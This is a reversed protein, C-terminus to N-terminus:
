KPAHELIAEALRRRREGLRYPDQDWTGWTPVAERVIDDVAAAGGRQELLVFYEYDEMGDRLNKLRISAVPGEIGADVGPYFLFGDGNWHVRFGPELWPNRDPSGWYVTSWYLLGTIGYRRNLWPAIRYSLWPFDIQWFPPRDNKVEEYEPDYPPATQVLATYSWVEDGQAQVRKVSAEHVFGFLPCWIDIAGDLVGWDPNQTYSQEVVLRRIGPAADRVLAGLQRVREYAEPDNPEDLMYLYAGKAWGKKELYAYWSRYFNVAHDRGAGLIDGFPARPIQINTMHHTEVLTTFQRDLEEGFEVTGDDKPAPQLRRPVPPNLHHAAMMAIYRDELRYYAESDRKLGHYDAVREFGGFHNEHTPGTPLTFDWVIVEFPLEVAAANAAQVRIAGRYVGAPIDRPVFVDVWIPQQRDQWLSFGTAGFRRGEVLQKGDWRPQPIDKGTYADHFPVLPDPVLGPPCTAHRVSHRVPVYVECYLSVGEAPLAVGDTNVLPLLEAHVRELDGGLARVVVQISEYEGRACAIEARDAGVAPGEQAVRVAGPLATLQISGQAAAQCAACALGIVMLRILTYKNM